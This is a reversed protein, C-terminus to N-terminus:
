FATNPSVMDDTKKRQNEYATCLFVTRLCESRISKFSLYRLNDLTSCLQLGATWYKIAAWCYQLTADSIPLPVLESGVYRDELSTLVTTAQRVAHVSTAPDPLSNLSRHWCVM